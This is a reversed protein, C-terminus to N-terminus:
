GNDSGRDFGFALTGASCGVPSISGVVISPSPVHSLLSRTNEERGLYGVAFTGALNLCVLKRQFDCKEITPFTSNSNSLLQSHVSLM